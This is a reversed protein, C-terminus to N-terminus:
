KQELELVIEAITRIALKDSLLAEELSIEERLVSRAAPALFLVELPNDLLRQKALDVITDVKNHFPSM